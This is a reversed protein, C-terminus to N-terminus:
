SFRSIPADQFNWPHPEEVVRGDGHRILGGWAQSMNRSPFPDARIEDVHYCGPKEHRLLEWAQELTDTDFGTEGRTVRFM